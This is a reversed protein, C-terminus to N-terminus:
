PPSTSPYSGSAGTKTKRVNRRKQQKATVERVVDLFARLVNSPAERRYAAGMEIEPLSGQVKRFTIGHRPTERISAPLLSVGVGAAVLALVTYVADAEHLASSLLM